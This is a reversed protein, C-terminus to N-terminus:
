ALLEPNNVPQYNEKDMYFDEADHFEGGEAQLNKHVANTKKAKGVGWYHAKM